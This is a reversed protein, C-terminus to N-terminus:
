FIEAPMRDAKPRVSSSRPRRSSQARRCGRAIPVPRPNLGAEGRLAAGARTLTIRTRGSFEIGLYWGRRVTRTGEILVYPIMERPRNKVPRAYTSSTGEWLDGERLAELHTGESSPTDAGRRWGSANSRPRRTSRGTSGSARSSRCGSRGGPFTRSSCWISSRVTRRACAGSGACGCRRRRASTSSSSTGQTATVRMATSGGDSHKGRAM